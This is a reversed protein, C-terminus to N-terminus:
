IRDRELDYIAKEVCWQESREPHSSQIRQVLRSAQEIDGNLLQYLKRRSAESAPQRVPLTDRIAKEICWQLPKSPYSERIAKVLEFCRDKNGNVLKLLVPLLQDDM